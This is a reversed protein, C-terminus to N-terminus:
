TGSEPILTAMMHEVYDDFEEGKMGIGHRQRALQLFGVYATYTLRARHHARVDDMGLSVFADVLYDLRRQTVREIVPTTLPHDEASFLANYVTHIEHGRAGARFLERLRKRPDRYAAVKELEVGDDAEWRALAAGILEDRSSFHWYFSGKTVGLRRALPEVAVASIGSEGIVALAAGVWDAVSLRVKDLKDPVTVM